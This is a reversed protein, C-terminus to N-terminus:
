LSHYRFNIQGLRAEICSRVEPPFGRLDPRGYFENMREGEGDQGFNHEGSFGEMFCSRMKEGLEQTPRGEGSLLKDLVESGLTEKLCERVGEPAHLIGERFHGIGEKMREM